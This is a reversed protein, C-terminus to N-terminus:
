FFYRVRLELRSTSQKEGFDSRAGGALRILRLRLDLNRFRIYSVEPSVSLSRDDLNAITTIAPTFYLIDFPEAQSLRVYLYHRGANPQGYGNRSAAAARQILAASGNAQWSALGNDVLQHFVSLEGETYGGGNRYYEVLTTVRSGTLHRMGVLYSRADATQSRLSGASDVFVQRAEFSHAWEGHIELNTGVNRSFDFGIRRARSGGALFMLDIDTDRYLLYLKGAVNVHGHTGFDSNLSDSVPVVVPTFAVTQLPGDFNRIFDATVMGFGERALEPENPDKPREVFAVPNWAYGKGWRLSIKGADLALGDVPKYSAYGEDFRARHSTDLNDGQYELHGRFNLVATEGLRLKGTPKATLTTRNVNSPVTRNYFGLKYFSGDQNLSIRDGRAEVYGSLEFPKRAFEAADFTFTEAAAALTCGTGLLAAALVRVCTV